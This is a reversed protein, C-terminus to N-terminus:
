FRLSLGAGIMLPSIQLDLSEPDGVPFNATIATDVRTYKADVNLGFRDTFRWTFGANVMAGVVDDLEINEFGADTLTQGTIEEFRFYSAGVGIYPDFRASAIPHFQLSVTGAIMDATGLPFSAVGSNEPAISLDSSVFAVGVESSFRPSWFVNLAAGGGTSEEFDVALDGTDSGGEFSADSTVDTWVARGILEIRQAQMPVAVISFALLVGMKLLRM